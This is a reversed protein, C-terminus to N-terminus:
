NLKEVLVKGFMGSGFPLYIEEYKRKKKPKRMWGSWYPM